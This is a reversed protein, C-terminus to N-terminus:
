RTLTHWVFISKSVECTKKHKIVRMNIFCVQEDATKYLHTKSKYSKMNKCNIWKDCKIETYMQTKSYVYYFNQINLIIATM